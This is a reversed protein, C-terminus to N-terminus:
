DFSDFCMFSPRFRVPGWLLRVRLDMLVEDSGGLMMYVVPNHVQNAHIVTKLPPTSESRFHRTCFLLDCRKKVGVKDCFRAGCKVHQRERRVVYDVHPVDSIGVSTARQKGTSTRKMGANFYHNDYVYGISM